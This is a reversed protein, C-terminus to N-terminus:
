VLVSKLSKFIPDLDELFISIANQYDPNMSVESSQFKSVWFVFCVWSVLVSQFFLSTEIFPVGGVRLMGVGVGAGPERKPSM